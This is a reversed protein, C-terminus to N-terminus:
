KKNRKIFLSKENAKRNKTLALTQPKLPQLQSQAHVPPSKFMGQMTLLKSLYFANNSFDKCITTLKVCRKIQEESYTQDKLIKLYISKATALYGNKVFLESCFLLDDVGARPDKSLEKAWELCRKDEPPCLQICKLKYYFSVPFTKLLQYYLDFSKTKANTRCYCDALRDLSEIHKPDLRLVEEFDKIALDFKELLHYSLARKYLPEIQEPLILCAKNFDSWAAATCGAALYANGRCLFIAGENVLLNKRWEESNQVEKEVLSFDNIQELIITYEHIAESVQRLDFLCDAYKHRIQNNDPQLLLAEQYDNKAGELDNKETARMAGRMVLLMARATQPLSALTENLYDLRENQPLLKLMTNDLLLLANTLTINDVYLEKSLMADILSQALDAYYKEGNVLVQTPYTGYGQYNALLQELKRTTLCSQLIRCLTKDQMVHNSEFIFKLHIHLLGVSAEIEQLQKQIDSIKLNQLLLYHCQLRLEAITELYIQSIEVQDASSLVMKDQKCEYSKWM